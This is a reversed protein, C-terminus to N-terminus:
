KTKLKLHKAYKEIIAVYEPKEGDEVFDLGSELLADHILKRTKATEERLVYKWHQGWFYAIGMYNKTGIFTLDLERIAVWAADTLQVRYSFLNKM